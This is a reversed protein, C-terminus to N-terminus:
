AYVLSNGVAGTKTTWDRRLNKIIIRVRKAEATTKSEAVVKPQPSGPLSELPSKSVPNDKPVVKPV